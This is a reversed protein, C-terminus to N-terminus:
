DIYVGSNGEGTWKDKYRNLDLRRAVFHGYVSWFVIYGFKLLRFVVWSKVILWFLAIAPESIM